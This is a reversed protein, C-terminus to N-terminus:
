NPSILLSLTGTYNGAQTKALNTGRLLIILSVTPAFGLSCSQGGASSTLGSLTTGATLATGSTQNASAAWQV